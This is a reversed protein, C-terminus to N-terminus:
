VLHFDHQHMHLQASTVGLLTVTDGHGDSVVAGASTDVTHALIDHVSSFISDDFQLTDRHVNFNAITNTGFDPRFLFTDQGHGGTLTDGNGGILVDDGSGAKLTDGGASGDLVFPGKGASLTTDTGALYSTGRDFVVISLTSTSLGGHDDSVTYKFVDQAVGDDGCSHADRDVVYTYSGDDNLTLSGYKGEVSHGVASTRGNVAEVTLQDHIDPDSDNALVGKAATESIIKGKAVGNSDPVAIPNDNSGDVTVVVGQTVTGGNHDDIVISATVVLSEGVGLFDFAKDAMSFSWDIKGTNTNGAEPTIQLANEFATIQAPTLAYTHGSADQYAITEDKSDITATPQDTLDPDSFAIVGHVSDIVSSGTTKPLETIAGTATTHAGDIVPPDNLGNITITETSTSGTGHGDSATFKFSLTTSQGLALYEYTGRPDFSFTGDSDFTLGAPTSGDLAYTINNGALDFASAEGKLITNQDTTASGNFAIPGLDQGPNQTETQGQAILESLNTGTFLNAIAQLRAANGAANSIATSAAGQMVLEVGAADSLLQAGPQDTQLVHDLAANGAAIVSAVSDAVSNGLSVSETHAVQTILASLATKDGLNIGANDLASALASFAAQLSPTFTGGAGALASAIMEVTDYVKAGAVEVAAGNASGGQAAAIPDFTTLNLTSSLALTSLLNKQAAPDSALDALLTTLPTIDTSGAPASLQGKFPLGTSTDTGGLAFLLGSTSGMVFEGSNNTIASPEGPDAVGNGNTDGFITTGSLYGDAAIGLTQDLSPLITKEIWNNVVPRLQADYYADLVVGAVLAAGVGIVVPASVVSAGIALASLYGGIAGEAAFGAVGALGIDVLAEASLKVAVDAVVAKLGQKVGVQLAESVAEHWANAIDEPTADPSDVATQWQQYITNAETGVSLATFFPAFVTNFEEGTLAAPQFSKIERVSELLAKTADLVVGAEKTGDVGFNATTFEANGNADTFFALDTSQNASLMFSESGGATSITLQNGSWSASEGNLSSLSILGLDIKNGEIGSITGTPMLLGDVKVTAGVGDFAINGSDTGNLELTSNAGISASGGSLNGNVLLTGGGSISLTEPGSGATVSSTGAGNITIADSGSGATINSNGNGNITVTDSGAGLAIKYSGDGGTVSTIDGPKDGLVFTKTLDFSTTTGALTVSADSPNANPLTITDGGGLANYLDAGATVASQQGSTLNTFDVTDAGVTFLATTAPATGLDVWVYSPYNITYNSLLSNSYPESEPLPVLPANFDSIYQAAPVGTPVTITQSVGDVVLLDLYLDALTNNVSLAEEGVENPANEHGLNPPVHQNSGLSYSTPEATATSSISSPLYFPSFIQLGGNNLQQSIPQLYSTNIGPTQPIQGTVFSAAASTSITIRYNQGNIMFLSNAQDDISSFTGTSLNYQSQVTIVGLDLRAWLDSM